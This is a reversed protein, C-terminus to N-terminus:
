PGEHDIVPHFRGVELFLEVDSSLEKTRGLRLLRIGKPANVFNRFAVMVKTMDRRRDAHFLEVGLPRIKM